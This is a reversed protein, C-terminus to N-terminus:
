VNLLAIPLKQYKQQDEFVKQNDTSLITQTSKISKDLSKVMHMEHAPHTEPPIVPSLSKQHYVKRQIEYTQTINRNPNIKEIIDVNRTLSKNKCGATKQKTSDLNSTLMYICTGVSFDM